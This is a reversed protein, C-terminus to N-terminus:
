CFVATSHQPAPLLQQDVITEGSEVFEHNAFVDHTSEQKWNSLINGVTAINSFVRISTGERKIYARKAGNNKLTATFKLYAIERVNVIEGASMVDIRLANKRYFFFAWLLGVCALLLTGVSSLNALQEWLQAKDSKM